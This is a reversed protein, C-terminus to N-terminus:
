GVTPQVHGRTVEAPSACGLLALGRALEDRLIELVQAVGQEGGAALGYLLPRGALVARAGLALAKL